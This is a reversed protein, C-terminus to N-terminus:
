RRRDAAPLEEAHRRQDAGDAARPLFAVEAPFDSKGQTAAAAKFAAKLEYDASDIRSQLYLHISTSARRRPGQGGKSRSSAPTTARGPDSKAIVRNGPDLVEM